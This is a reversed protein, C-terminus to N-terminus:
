KPVSTKFTRRMAGGSVVAGKWLGFSLVDNPLKYPGRAPTAGARDLMYFSTKHIDGGTGFCVIFVTEDTFMLDHVNVGQLTAVKRFVGGTTVQVLEQEHDHSLVLWWRDGGAYSEIPRPYIGMDRVFVPPEELNTFGMIERDNVVAVAGGNLRTMRRIPAAVVAPNLPVNSWAAGAGTWRMVATQSWAIVENKETVWLGLLDAALPALMTVKGKLDVLFVHASTDSHGGRVVRLAVFGSPTPILARLVGRELPTRIISAGERILALACRDEVADLGKRPDYRERYAVGIALTDGSVALTDVAEDPGLEM